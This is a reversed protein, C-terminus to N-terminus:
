TRAFSRRPRNRLAPPAFAAFQPAYAPHVAVLQEQLHTSLESIVVDADALKGAIEDCYTQSQAARELDFLSPDTPVQVGAYGLSAAWQAMTELKDFPPTAGAFQALFIAPGKM